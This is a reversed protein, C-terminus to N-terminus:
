KLIEKALFLTQYMQDVVHAATTMQDPDNIKLKLDFCVTALEPRLKSLSLSGIHKFPSKRTKM